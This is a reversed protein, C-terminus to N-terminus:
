PSDPAAALVPLKGVHDGEKVKHAAFWGKNTELAYRAPFESPVPSEDLPLMDALSVIKGDADIYAISLPIKTNKMWFSRERDDAYVFLMGEDAALTDRYMLGRQREAMDDAVEVTMATGAVDIQITPLAHACAPLLLIALNM